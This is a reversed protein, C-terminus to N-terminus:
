QIMKVPTFIDEYVEEQSKFARGLDVVDKVTQGGDQSNTSNVPGHFKKVSPTDSTLVHRTLLTVLRLTGHEYYTRQPTDPFIMAQTRRTRRIM